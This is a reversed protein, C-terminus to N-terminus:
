APPYKTLCAHAFPNRNADNRIHGLALPMASPRIRLNGGYGDREIQPCLHQGTELQSRMPFFLTDRVGRM